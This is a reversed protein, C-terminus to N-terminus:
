YPHVIIEDSFRDQNGNFVRASVKVLHRGAVDPTFNTAYWGEGLEQIGFGLLREALLTGDPRYLGMTLEQVSADPTAEETLPDVNMVRHRLWFTKEVVLDGKIDM